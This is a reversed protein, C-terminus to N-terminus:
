SRILSRTGVIQNTGNWVFENVPFHDRCACCFTGGYFGPNRAYTEAINLAMTTICGCGGIRDLEAQTWFKGCGNDYEEYMVYDYKSYISVEKDTLERLNKPKPPGVHVYSLRLPEVFGKKREEESLVVYALQQGTNPDIERHSRGNPDNTLETEM